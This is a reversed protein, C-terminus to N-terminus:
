KRLAQFVLPDLVFFDLLEERDYVTLSPNRIANTVLALRWNPHESHNHENRSLYFRPEESVTGKVELFLTSQDKRVLLDYGCNDKQRDDIQFGMAGYHNKVFDIAAAESDRNAKGKFSNAWEALDEDEKKQLFLIGSVDKRHHCYKAITETDQKLATARYEGFYKWRGVSAKIYVPVFKKAEFFLQANAMIRPGTGVVIIDPAEPNKKTTIALGKVENNKTRIYSDGGALLNALQETSIEKRM